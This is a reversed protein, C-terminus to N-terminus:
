NSPYNVVQNTKRSAFYDLLLRHIFIYGSGVNRLFIHHVAYNLFLPYNRPVDDVLYLLTRLIVHELVQLGGSVVGGIVFTACFFSLGSILGATPTTLIGVLFGTITGVILGSGIGFRLANTFMRWTGENPRYVREIMLDVTGYALGGVLSTALAFGLGVVVAKSWGFVGNVAIAGTLGFVIAIPMRRFFGIIGAKWSWDLRRIRINSLLDSDKRDTPAAIRSFLFTITVGLLLFVFVAFILNHNFIWVTTAFALGTFIGMLIRYVWQFSGRELVWVGLAATIGYFTGNVM